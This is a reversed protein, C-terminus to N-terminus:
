RKGRKTEIAVPEPKQEDPSPAVAEAEGAELLRRAVLDPLEYVEGISLPREAGADQLFRAALMRVRM